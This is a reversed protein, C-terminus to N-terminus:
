LTLHFYYKYCLASPPNPLAHRVARCNRPSPDGRRSLHAGPSTTRGISRRDVESIDQPHTALPHRAAKSVMDQASSILETAVRTGLVVYEKWQRPRTYLLVNVASKRKVSYYQQTIIRHSQLFNSFIHFSGKLQETISKINATVSKDLRLSLKRDTINSM